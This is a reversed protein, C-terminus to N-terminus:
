AVEIEIIEDPFEERKLSTSIRNGYASPTSWIRRGGALEICVGTPAKRDSAFVLIFIRLIQLGLFENFDSRKDPQTYFLEYAHPAEDSWFDAESWVYRRKSLSTLPFSLSDPWKELEIIPTQGDSGTGITLEKAEGDAGTWALHLRVDTEDLGSENPWVLLGLQQLRAGLLIKLSQAIHDVKDM